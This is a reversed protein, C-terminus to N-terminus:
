FTFDILVHSQTIYSKLGPKLNMCTGFEFIITMDLFKFKDWPATLFWHFNQLLISVYELKLKAHLKKKKSQIHIFLTLGHAFTSLHVM